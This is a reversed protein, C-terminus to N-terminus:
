VAESPTDVHGTSKEASIRLIETRLVNIEMVLGSNYRTQSALSERLGDITEVLESIYAKAEILEKRTEALHTEAEAPIRTIDEERRKRGDKFGDQYAQKTADRFAAEIAETTKTSLPASSKMWDSPEIRLPKDKKSWDEWLLSPLCREAEIRSYGVAALSTAYEELTDWSTRCGRLAQVRDAAWYVFTRVDFPQGIPFAVSFDRSTPISPIQKM